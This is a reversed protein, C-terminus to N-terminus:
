RHGVNLLKHECSQDWFLSRDTRILRHSRYHCSTRTEANRFSPGERHTPDFGSIIHVMESRSEGLYTQVASQYKHCIVLNESGETVWVLESSLFSFPKNGTQSRKQTVQSGLASSVEIDDGVLDQSVACTEQAIPRLNEVELTYVDLNRPAAGYSM